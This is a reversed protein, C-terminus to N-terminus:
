YSGKLNRSLFRCRVLAKKGQSDWTPIRTLEPLEQCGCLHM